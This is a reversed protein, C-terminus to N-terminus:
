ECKTTASGLVEPEEPRFSTSALATGALRERRVEVGLFFYFMGLRVGRGLLSAGVVGNLGLGARVALLALLAFCGLGTYTFVNMWLWNGKAVVLHYPMELIILPLYLMMLCMTPIAALYKPMLWPVVVPLVVCAGLGMLSVPVIGWLMPRRCLRLCARASGTRGYEEIVRPMYVAAIAQALKNAVELFMLSANWLGLPSIGLLKVVLTAEAATWGTTTGYSATFLPIGQKAIGYWERWNFRWRLRLPRRRHLYVVSALIGVSSRLVLAVYPFFVFCPVTVLNAVNGVVSGKVVTVFDHGSRYTTSLYTSYTCVSGAVAQALWALGARWNGQGFAVLALLGFVGSLLVSVGVSWSQCIEAVAFAQARRGQGMYLPYLRQLADFLGLHLFFAYATLIAFQRFYGLDEPGVFRVQVLTGVLGIITGLLSGGVM